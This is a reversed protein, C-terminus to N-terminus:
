IPSIDARESAIYNFKSTQKSRLISLVNADLLTGNLTIDFNM